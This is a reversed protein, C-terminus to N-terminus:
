CVEVPLDAFNSEDTTPSISEDGAKKQGKDGELWDSFEVLNVSKPLAKRLTKIEAQTITPMTKRIIKRWEKKGIAGDKSFTQWAKDNSSGFKALLAAKLAQVNQEDSPSNSNSSDPTSQPALSLIPTSQESKCM